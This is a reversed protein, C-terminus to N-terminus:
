RIPCVASAHEFYSEIDAEEALEFELACQKGGPLNVMLVTQSTDELFIKGDDIVTTVFADDQGTVSAGKPLPSGHQDVATLLLRRVKVVGFEVLSVSGRGM